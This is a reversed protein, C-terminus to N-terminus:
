RKTAICIFSNNLDVGTVVVDKWMDEMDEFYANMVDPSMWTVHKRNHWMRWYKQTIMDPLYLFMIGGPKLNKHWHDVAAVWDYLHELCHSSFIYDVNDYPLSYADGGFTKDIMMSGPYAWEERNCGVDYGIGEPLIKKAFEKVWGAANGEAQLDPYRSGKFEIM